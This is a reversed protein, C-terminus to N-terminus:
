SLRAIQHMWWTATAIVWHTHAAWRLKTDFMVGLYKYTTVTNVTQATISGGPDTCHLTLNTPIVNCHLRLFNM